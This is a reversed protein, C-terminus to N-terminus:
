HKNRDKSDFMFPKTSHLLLSIALILITAALFGIGIYWIDM